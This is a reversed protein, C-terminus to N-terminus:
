TDPLVKRTTRRRGKHASTGIERPLQTFRSKEHTFYYRLGGTVRIEFEKRTM